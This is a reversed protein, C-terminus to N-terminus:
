QVSSRPGEHLTGKLWCKRGWFGVCFAFDRGKPYRTTTFKTKAFDDNKEKKKPKKIILKKGIQLFKGCFFMKKLYLWCFM